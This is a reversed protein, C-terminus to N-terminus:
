TGPKLHSLEKAVKGSVKLQMVRDHHVTEQHISLSDAKPDVATVMGGMRQIEPQASVHKQEMKGEPKEMEASKEGTPSSVAAPQEQKAKEQALTSGAMSLAFIFVVWVIFLKKM